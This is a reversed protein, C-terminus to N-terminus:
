RSVIGFRIPNSIMLTAEGQRSASLYLYSPDATMLLM